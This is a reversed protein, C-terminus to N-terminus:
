NNFKVGKSIIPAFCVTEERSVSKTNRIVLIIKGLAMNGLNMLRPIVYSAFYTLFLTLLCLLATTVMVDAYFFAMRYVNLEKKNSFGFFDIGGFNFLNSFDSFGPRFAKSLFFLAYFTLVSLICIPKFTMITEEREKQTFRRM